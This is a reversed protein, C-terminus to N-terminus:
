GQASLKRQSGITIQGVYAPVVQAIRRQRAQADRLADRVQGIRSTLRELNQRRRALLADLRPRIAPTAVAAGLRALEAVLPEARDQAKRMGAYDEGALLAAEQAVLDELAGLLRGFTAVPATM